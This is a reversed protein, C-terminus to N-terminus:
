LILLFLMWAMLISSFFAQFKKRNDYSPNIRFIQLLPDIVTIDQGHFYREIRTFPCGYGLIHIFFLPTFLLLM